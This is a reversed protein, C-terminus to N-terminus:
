RHVQIDSKGSGSGARLVGTTVSIANSAPFNVMKDRKPTFHKSYKINLPSVGPCIFLEAFDHSIM